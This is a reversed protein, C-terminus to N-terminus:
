AAFKLSRRSAAGLSAGHHKQYQLVPNYQEDVEDVNVVALYGREYLYELCEHVRSGLFTAVQEPVDPLEVKAIYRYFYKRPCQRFAEIKSHSYTAM